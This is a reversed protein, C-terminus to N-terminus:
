DYVHEIGLERYFYYKKLTKAIENINSDQFSNGLQSFGIDLSTLTGNKELKLLFNNAADVIYENEEYIISIVIHNSKEPTVKHWNNKKDIFIYSLSLEFGLLSLLDNLLSTAHRCCCVGCMVQTGSSIISPLYLYDYDNSFYIIGNQSFKGNHLMNLIIKIYHLINEEKNQKLFLKLNHLFDKYLDNMLVKDNATLDLM